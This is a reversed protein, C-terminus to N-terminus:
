QCLEKLALIFREIEEEKTLRSLSVRISSRARAEDGTMKFIIQSFSSNQSCASQTSVYIDQDSLFSQVDSSNHGLISINLIHPVSDKTSNITIQPLKKLSSVLLNNLRTVYTLDQDFTAMIEQLADKLSLVLPTAPTGSRYISLSHGGSIQSEILVSKKRLLCGIGKMGYFKHAALSIMDVDNLNYKKKGIAQTADTHFVLHPYNKLFSAIGEIDQSVGTESNIAGISVFITDEQIYSKLLDPTILGDKTAEIVDIDFGLDSLQRFASVVSSHEYPSVLIHKGEEQHKMCYGKIALNNAETAGSTYILEHDDLGFLNLISETAKNIEFLAAQGLRHMSNPNAFFRVTNKTFQELVHPNVPTTASYDLYVM